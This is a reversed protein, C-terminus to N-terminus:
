LLTQILSLDAMEGPVSGTQTKGWGQLHETRFGRGLEGQVLFLLLVPFLWMDQKGLKHGWHEALAWPEGPVPVSSLPM